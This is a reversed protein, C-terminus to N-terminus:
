AEAQIKLLLEAQYWFSNVGSGNYRRVAYPWDCGVKARVPVDELKDHKHYQTAKFVHKAGEHDMFKFALELEQDHDMFDEKLTGRHDEGM